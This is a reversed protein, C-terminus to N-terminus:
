GNRKSNNTGQENNAGKNFTIVKIKDKREEREQQEKVYECKIQFILKFIEDLLLEKVDKGDTPKKTM